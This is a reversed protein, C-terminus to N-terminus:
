TLMLIIHMYEKIITFKNFSFLTFLHCFNVSMTKYKIRIFIFSKNWKVGSKIKRKM